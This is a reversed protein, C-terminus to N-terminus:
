YQHNLKFWFFVSPCIFIDVYELFFLSGEVVFEHSVEGFHMPEDAKRILAVLHLIRDGFLFQADALYREPQKLTPSTASAPHQTRLAHAFQSAQWLRTMAGFRNRKWKPMRKGGRTVIWNAFPQYTCSESNATLDFCRISMPHPYKSPNFVRPDNTTVQKRECEEFADLLIALHFARTPHSYWDDSHKM